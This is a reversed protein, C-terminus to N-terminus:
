LKVSRPSILLRGACKPRWLSVETESSTMTTTFCLVEVMQRWTAGAYRIELPNCQSLLQVLHLWTSGGPHWSEPWGKGKRLVSSKKAALIFIYPLTDLYPDLPDLEISTLDASDIASLTRVSQNLQLDYETDNAKITDGIRFSEVDVASSM